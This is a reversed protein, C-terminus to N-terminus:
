HRYVSVLLSLGERDVGYANMNQIEIRAQHWDSLDNLFAQTRRNMVMDSVESNNLIDITLADLTPLL